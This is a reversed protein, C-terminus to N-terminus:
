KIFINEKHDIVGVKDEGNSRQVAEPHRAREAISGEGITIVYPIHDGINVAKGEKAM